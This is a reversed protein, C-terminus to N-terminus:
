GTKTRRVCGEVLGDAAASTARGVPTPPPFTVAAASVTVSVEIPLTTGQAQMWENFAAQKDRALQLDTVMGEM